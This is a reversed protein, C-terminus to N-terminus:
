IEIGDRIEFFDILKNTKRNFVWLLDTQITKSYSSNYIYYSNIVIELEKNKDKKKDSNSNNELLTKLYTENVTDLRKMYNVIYKNKTLEEKEKIKYSNSFLMLLENSTVLTDKYRSIFNIKNNFDIKNYVTDSIEERMNNLQEQNKEASGVYMLTVIKETKDTYDKGTCATIFILLSLSIFSLILLRKIILKM